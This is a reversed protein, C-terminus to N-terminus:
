QIKQDLLAEQFPDVFIQRRFVLGDVPKKGSVPLALNRNWNGPFKLNELFGASNEKSSKRFEPGSAVLIRDSFIVSITM